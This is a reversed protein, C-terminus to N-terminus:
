EKPACEVRSRIADAVGDLSGSIDCLAYRFAKLENEILAVLAEEVARYRGGRAFENHEDVLKQNNEVVHFMPYKREKELLEWTRKYRKEEALLAEALRASAIKENDLEKDLEQNERQLQSIVKSNPYAGGCKCLAVTDGHILVRTGDLQRQAEDREKIVENLRAETIRLNYEAMAQVKRAKDREIRYQDTENM